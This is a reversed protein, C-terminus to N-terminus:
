GDPNKKEVARQIRDAQVSTIACLNSRVRHIDVLLSLSTGQTAQEHIIKGLVDSTEKQAKTVEEFCTLMNALKTDQNKLIHKLLYGFAAFFPAMGTLIIGLFKAFDEIQSAELFIM